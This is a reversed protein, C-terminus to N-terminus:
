YRSSVRQVNSPAIRSWRGIQKPSAAFRQAYLRHGERQMQLAMSAAEPHGGDALRALEAFAEQWQRREYLGLAQDFRSALASSPRHAARASATADAAPLNMAVTQANTSTTAWGSCFIMLALHWAKFTICTM